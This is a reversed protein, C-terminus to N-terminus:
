KGNHSGEEIGFGVVALLVLKGSVAYPRWPEAIEIATEKDPLDALGYNDRIASRVGLDDHHSYM